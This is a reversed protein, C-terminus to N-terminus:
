KIFKKLYAFQKEDIDSNWEQLSQESLKLFNKDLQNVKKVVINEDIMDFEIYDGSNISLKKRIEKPITAQFQSTVRSVALM